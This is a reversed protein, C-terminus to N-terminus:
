SPYHLDPFPKMFQRFTNNFRQTDKDYAILLRDGPGMAPTKALGLGNTEFSYELPANQAHNLSDFVPLLVKPVDDLNVGSKVLVQYQEEISFVDGELAIAPFSRSM